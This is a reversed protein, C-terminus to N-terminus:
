RVVRFVPKATQGRKNLAERAQDTVGSQELHAYKETMTTNTHALLSKVAHLSLGARLARTAFTDRCSHITARGETANVEPDGNCVESIILRLLRVARNMESFPRTEGRRTELWAAVRDTLPPLARTGTKPRKVEIYRERFSIQVWRLNLAVSLDMGTDCLLMYLGLAKHYASGRKAVVGGRHLTEPYMLRHLILADEQDSIFRSKVFPKLEKAELKPNV